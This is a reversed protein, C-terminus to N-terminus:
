IGESKNIALVCYLVFAVCGGLMTGFIMGFVFQM